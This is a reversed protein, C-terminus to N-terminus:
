EDDEYSKADENHEYSKGALIGFSAEDAKFSELITPQNLMWDLNFTDNSKSQFYEVKLKNLDQVISPSFAGFFNDGKQLFSLIDEVSLDSANEFFSRMEVFVASPLYDNANLEEVGKLTKLSELAVNFKRVFEIPLYDRKDLNQANFASEFTSVLASAPTIFDSLKTNLSYENPNQFHAYMLFNFVFHTKQFDLYPTIQSIDRGRHYKYLTTGYEPNAGVLCNEQANMEYLEGDEYYISAFLDMSNPEFLGFVHATGQLTKRLYRQGSQGICINYNKTINGLRSTIQTKQSASQLDRTLHPESEDLFADQQVIAFSTTASVRKKMAVPGFQELSLTDINYAQQAIRIFNLTSVYAGLSLREQTTQANQPESPLNGFVSGKIRPFIKLSYHIPYYPMINKKFNAGCLKEREGEGVQVSKNDLIKKVSTSFTGMELLESIDVVHKINPNSGKIYNKFFKSKSIDEFGTAFKFTWVKAFFEISANLKQSFIDFTSGGQPDYFYGMEMKSPSTLVQLYAEINEKFASNVKFERLYEPLIDGDRYSEKDMFTEFRTKSDDKADFLDDYEFVTANKSFLELEREVDAISVSELNMLHSWSTDRQSVGLAQKYVELWKSMPKIAYSCALAKTDKLYPNERVDYQKPNLAVNHLLALPKTYFDIFSYLYRIAPKHAGLDVNPACYKGSDPGLWGDFYSQFFRWLIGYDKAILFDRPSPCHTGSVIDMAVGLPAKQIAVNAQMHEEFRALIQPVWLALCSTALFNINKGLRVDVDYTYDDVVRAYPNGLSYREFQKPSQYNSIQVQTAGLIQAFEYKTNALTNKGEQLGTPLQPDPFRAIFAVEFDGSHDDVNITQNTHSTVVVSSLENKYEHRMKGNSGLKLYYDLTHSLNPEWDTLDLSITGLLNELSSINFAIPGYSVWSFNPNTSAVIIENAENGYKSIPFDLPLELKFRTNPSNFRNFDFIACLPRERDELNARKCFELGNYIDDEDHIDFVVADQDKLIQNRLLIATNSTTKEIRLNKSKANTLDFYAYSANDNIIFVSVSKTTNCILTLPAKTLINGEKTCTMPAQCLYIREGSMHMRPVFEGVINGSPDVMPLKESLTRSVANRSELLGARDVVKKILPYVNKNSTRLDISLIPISSELFLKNKYKYRVENYTSNQDISREVDCVTEYNVSSIVQMRVQSIRIESHKCFGEELKITLGGPALIDIMDPSIAGSLNATYSKLDSAYVITTLHSIGFKNIQKLCKATKPSIRIDQGKALDHPSDEDQIHVRPMVVFSPQMNGLKIFPVGLFLSPQQYDFGKRKNSTFARLRNAVGEISDLILSTNVAKTNVYYDLNINIVLESFDLEGNRLISSDIASQLEDQLDEETTEDGLNKLVEEFSFESRIFEDEADRHEMSLLFEEHTFEDHIGAHHENLFDEMASEFESSSSFSDHVKEIYDQAVEISKYKEIFAQINSQLRSDIGYAVEIDLELTTGELELTSKDFGFLKISDEKSYSERWNVKDNELIERYLELITTHGELDNTIFKTTAEQLAKPDDRLARFYDLISIVLMDEVNDDLFEQFAEQFLTNIDM